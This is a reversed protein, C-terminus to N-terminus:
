AHYIKKLREIYGHFSFQLVSTKGNAVLRQAVEPDELITKMAVFIANEDQYPVVLANEGDAIFEHAIGSLTFISPVGAALAEVYTQGFAECDNNIPVHVYVDFVSYLAFVNKEFPVILKNASPIEKLLHEIHLDYDANKGGGFLCLKADPYSTLLQTFAKITYQIGKWEMRRAIVGIVPHANESNYNEQIRQLETSPISNFENLDFGHHILWIKNPEVGQAILYARIIETIAIIKNSLKNQIKDIIKEKWNLKLPKGSHRTYVRNPVRALYAAWLGVWNADALHCHVLDTKQKKLIKKCRFIARRSKALKQCDIFDVEFNQELLFQALYGSKCNILIYSVELNNERLKLATKEFYIAKDIDSIIYSIKL